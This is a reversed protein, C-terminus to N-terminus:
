VSHATRSRIEDLYGYATVRAIALRSAIINVAKKMHLAGQQDLTELVDMRDGRNMQNVTKGTKRIAEDIMAQMVSVLDQRIFETPAADSLEGRNPLLGDVLTRIQWLSSMDVNICLTGILSDQHNFFNVTSCQLERGGQGAAKYGFANLAGDEENVSGETSNLGERRSRHGYDQGLVRFSLNTTPGGVSRGSVHGNEIAIITHDLDVRLGSLDHLVVECHPGVAAAIARMIPLMSDRLEEVSEFTGTQGPEAAGASHSSNM